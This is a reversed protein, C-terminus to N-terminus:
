YVNLLSLAVERNSQQMFKHLNRNLQRRVAPRCIQLAKGEIKKEMLQQHTASYFRIVTYPKPSRGTEVTWYASPQASLAPISFLTCCLAVYLLKKM